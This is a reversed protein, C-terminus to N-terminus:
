TRAPRLLRPCHWACWRQTRGGKRLKAWTGISIVVGLSDDELEATDLVIRLDNLTDPISIESPVGNRNEPLAGACRYFVPIGIGPVMPQYADRTLALPNAGGDTSVACRRSSALDSSGANSYSLEDPIRRPLVKRGLNESPNV